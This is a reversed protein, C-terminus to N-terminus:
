SCRIASADAIARMEDDSARSSRRSETGPVVPVGAAIAIQRAATKSGM